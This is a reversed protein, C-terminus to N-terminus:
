KYEILSARRGRLRRLWFTVAGQLEPVKQVACGSAFLWGDASSWGPNRRAHRAIRVVLVAYAAVVAAASGVAGLASDLFVAILFATLGAFPLVGAWFISSRLARYRPHLRGYAAVGEAAAHGSRVSRRWFQSWRTMAADHRTMPAAVSLIRFGDLRLRLCLELEEGAILAHDFGGVQLYASVRFMADGGCSSVDGEPSYWELDCLRNYVSTEPHREQRRGHIAAVTVDSCLERAARDLWHDDLTCDGDVFQVLEVSPFEELLCRLGEDRARAATFPRSPDLEHVKAGSARARSVSDDTSGSDVYIVATYRHVDISDLCAALREGENRGIVVIGVACGDRGAFAASGPAEPPQGAKEPAEGNM